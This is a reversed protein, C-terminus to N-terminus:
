PVGSNDGFLPASSWVSLHLSSSVPQCISPCRLKVPGWQLGSSGLTPFHMAVSSAWVPFSYFFGFYCFDRLHGSLRVFMYISPCIISGSLTNSGTAQPRMRQACNRDAVCVVLCIYMSVSPYVSIYLSMSVFICVSLCISPCILDVTVWQLGKSGLTPIFTNRCQVEVSYILVFVFIEFIGASSQVFPRVSM